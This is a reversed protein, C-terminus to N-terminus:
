SWHSPRKHREMEDVPDTEENALARNRCVRLRRPDGAEEWGQGGVGAVLGLTSGGSLGFVKRSQPDDRVNSSVDTHAPLHCAAERACVAVHLGAGGLLPGWCHQLPDTDLESTHCCPASLLAVAWPLRRRSGM